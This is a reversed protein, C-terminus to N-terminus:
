CILRQMSCSKRPRISGSSLAHRTIYRNEDTILNAPNRPCSSVTECDMEDYVKQHAPHIQVRWVSSFGGEHRVAASDEDEKMFPLICNNDFEYHLVNPRFEFVPALFSWQIRYFEHVDWKSLIGLVKQHTWRTDHDVGILSIAEASFPLDSDSLEATMFAEITSSKGIWVLIAFLMQASKQVYDVLEDESHGLRRDDGVLAALERLINEKTFISQLANRPIFYQSDTGTVPVRIDMIREKITSISRGISAYLAGVNFYDVSKSGTCRAALASTYGPTESTAARITQSNTSENPRSIQWLNADNIYQPSQPRVNAKDNSCRSKKAPPRSMDDFGDEDDNEDESDDKDDNMHPRKCKRPRRANDEFHQALHQIRHDWDRFEFDSCMVCQGDFKPPVTFYSQSLIPGLPVKPHTQKIHDEFRYKRYFITGNRGRKMVKKCCPGAAAHKTHVHQVHHAEPNQLGCYTCYVVGEILVTAGLSCVYGRQPFVLEEHSRWTDKKEFARECGVTCKYIRPRAEEPPVPEEHWAACRTAQRSVWEAAERPAKPDIIFSQGGDLAQVEPKDINSATLAVCKQERGASTTLIKGFAQEITELNEKALAALLERDKEVPFKGPNQEIWFKAWTEAKSILPPSGSRHGIHIQGSTRPPLDLSFDALV